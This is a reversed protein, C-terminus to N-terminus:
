PADPLGLFTTGNNSLVRPCDSLVVWDVSVSDDLAIKFQVNGGVGDRSSLAVVSWLARHTPDPDRHLDSGLLYYHTGDAAYEEGAYGPVAAVAGACAQYRGVIAVEASPIDDFAVLETGIACRTASCSGLPWGEATKPAANWRGQLTTGGDVAPVDCAAVVSSLLGLSSFRRVDM